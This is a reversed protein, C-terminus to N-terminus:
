RPKCVWRWLFHSNGQRQIRLVQRELSRREEASIGRWLHHTQWVLTSITWAICLTLGISALRNYVITYRVATWTFYDLWLAIESQLRWLCIPAIVVWLFIVFWWRSYVILQHLRIVQQQFVPDQTQSLPDKSSDQSRTM